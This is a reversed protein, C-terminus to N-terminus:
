CKQDIRLLSTKDVISSIETGLGHCYVGALGHHSTGLHARSHRANRHGGFFLTNMRTLSSCLRLLVSCPFEGSTDHARGKRITCIIATAFCYIFTRVEECPSRIPPHSHSVDLLSCLSVDLLSCLSIYLPKCLSVYLLTCLSGYLPKAFLFMSCVAFLSRVKM